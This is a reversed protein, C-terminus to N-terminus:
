DRVCRVYCRKTDDDKIRNSYSTGSSFNVSWAITKTSEFTTSSWYYYPETTTFGDVIAPELRSDDIITKLENINPLRWGTGDLNLGECYDIAAQWVDVKITGDNDGYNDQWKLTTTSDTVIGNADRTFDAWLFVSLGLTILLIRKM